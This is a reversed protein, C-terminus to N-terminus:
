LWRASTDPNIYNNITLSVLSWNYTGDALLMSPMAAFSRMSNTAEMTTNSGGINYRVIQMGLGVDADFLMDAVTDQMFGAHLVRSCMVALKHVCTSVLNVPCRYSHLPAVKLTALMNELGLWLREGGTLSRLPRARASPCRCSSQSWTRFASGLSTQCFLLPQCM